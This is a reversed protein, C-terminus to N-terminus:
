QLLMRHLYAVEEDIEHPASVTLAVELRIIERLRKRLRSVDSKVTGVPRGSEEAAEEYTPPAESGPLFRRLVVFMEPGTEKEVRGMARVLIQVAWARDFDPDGGDAPAM